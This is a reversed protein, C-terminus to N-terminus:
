TAVYRAGSVSERTLASRSLVDLADNRLVDRIDEGTDLAYELQEETPRMYLVVTYTDDSM